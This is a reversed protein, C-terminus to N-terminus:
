FPIVARLNSAMGKSVTVTAPDKGKLVLRYKGGFWTQIERVFDINVITSRHVRVFKKPNLVKELEALTKSVILSKGDPTRLFVYKAEAYFHTIEAVTFVLAREGIQVTLQEMYESGKKDDDLRRLIEEIKREFDHEPRKSTLQELKKIARRLPGNEIPKLLFDVSTAEFAQLAYEDYGTTFIVVPPESLRRLVEFANYGPLNIDMFVLDPQHEQIAEVAGPGSDARGIVEVSPFEGLLRTLRRLALPEDDVLLTRYVM